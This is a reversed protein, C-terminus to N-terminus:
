RVGPIPGQHDSVNAAIQTTMWDSRHEIVGYVPIVAVVGSPPRADQEQRVLALHASPDAAWDRIAALASPLIAWPADYVAETRIPRPM